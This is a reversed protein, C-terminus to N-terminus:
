KWCIGVALIAGAMAGYIGIGGENILFVRIPDKSYFEGWLDIVHYARAGILALPLALILINFVHDPNENRRKAEITAVWAGVLLGIAILTSYWRLGFSGIKFIYEM